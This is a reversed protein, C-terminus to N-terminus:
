RPCDEHAASNSYRYMYLCLFLTSAAVKQANPIARIGQSCSASDAQWTLRAPWVNAARPLSAIYWPPSGWGCEFYYDRPGTERLWASQSWVTVTCYLWNAAAIRPSNPPRYTRTSLVEIMTLEGLSLKIVAHLSSLSLHLILLWPDERSLTQYCRYNHTTHRYLSTTYHPLDPLRTVSM